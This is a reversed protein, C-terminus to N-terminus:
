KNSIVSPKAVSSRSLIAPSAISRSVISSPSISISKPFLELENLKDKYRVMDDIRAYIISLQILNFFKM